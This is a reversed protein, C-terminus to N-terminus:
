ERKLEMEAFQIEEKQKMHEAEKKCQPQQTECRFNIEIMQIEKTEKMEIMKSNNVKQDHNYNYQLTNRMQLVMQKDHTKLQREIVGLIFPAKKSVLQDALKGNAELNEKDKAGARGSPRRLRASGERSSIKIFCPETPGKRSIHGSLDEMDSQTLSVNDSNEDESRFGDELPVFASPRLIAM